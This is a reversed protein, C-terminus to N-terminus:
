VMPLAFEFRGARLPALIGGSLVVERLCLGGFLGSVSALISIAAGGEGHMGFTGILELIIPVILGLIVVGVWFLPAVSGTLVLKASARSEPVRHTAQLYFVLVFMEMIILLIDMRALAEVQGTLAGGRASAILMVAMIGTSLASVFFLLPVMATSWFAIPRNAGLLIGTYIMTLVAFITGLVGIVQRAGVADELAHFPWIWFGIHIVGVIMFTTIIITGRAVWSTNPRMGARWFNKPTGLDAILFLCGVAVCPFGLFVGIKSIQVWEGGLFDAVVGTVYAGGGLGALFLYAAILWRWKSQAKLEM